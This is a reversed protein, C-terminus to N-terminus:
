NPLLANALVGLGLLLAYVFVAALVFVNQPNPLARTTAAVVRNARDTYFGHEQQLLETRNGELERTVLNQTHCHRCGVFADRSDPLPGGCARCRAPWGPQQPARAFLLPRVNKRYARRSIALALCIALAFGGVAVPGMASNLIITPRVESPAGAVLDWTSVLSYLGLVVAFVMFTGAARFFAWRSEFIHALASETGRMQAAAQAAQRVRRSLELARQLQDEPLM